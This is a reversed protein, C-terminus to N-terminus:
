GDVDPWGDGDLDGACSSEARQFQGVVVSPWIAKAREPGPHLVVVIAGMDEFNTVYDALGDRDFDAPDLGNCLRSGKYIQHQVWETAPVSSPYVASLVFILTINRFCRM